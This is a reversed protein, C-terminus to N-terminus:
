APQTPRPETQEARAIQGIIAKLEKLARTIFIRERKAKILEPPIEEAKIGLQSAIYSDGLQQRIKQASAKSAARAKHTNAKAWHLSAAIIEERKKEYRARAKAKIKEKNKEYRAHAAASIKEANVANSLRKKEKLKSANAAYWARQYARRKAKEDKTLAAM